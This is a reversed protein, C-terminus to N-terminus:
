AGMETFLIAFAVLCSLNELLTGPCIRLFHGRPFTEDKRFDGFTGSFIMCKAANRATYTWDHTEAVLLAASQETHLFWHQHPPSPESSGPTEACAKVSAGRKLTLRSVRSDFPRISLWAWSSLHHTHGLGWVEISM